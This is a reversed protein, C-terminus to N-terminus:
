RLGGVIEPINITDGGVRASGSGAADPAGKARSPARIGRTGGQSGAVGRQPDVVKEERGTCIRRSSVGDREPGVLVRLAQGKLLASVDYDCGIGDGESASSADGHVSGGRGSGGDARAEGDVAVVSEIDATALRERQAGTCKGTAGPGSEIDLAQAGDSRGLGAQRRGTHNIADDPRPGADASATGRSVGGEGAIVDGGEGAGCCSRGRVDGARKAGEVVIHGGGARESCARADVGKTVGTRRPRDRASQGSFADHVHATTQQGEGARHGRSSRPSFQDDIGRVAVDGHAARATCQGAGNGLHPCARHGHGGLGVGNAPDRDIFAYQNRIVGGAIPDGAGGDRDVAAARQFETATVLM